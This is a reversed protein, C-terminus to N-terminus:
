HPTASGTGQVAPHLTPYPHHSRQNSPYSGPQPAGPASAGPNMMVVSPGAPHAHQVQVQAPAAQTHGQMRRYEVHRRLDNNERELNTITVQMNQVTGQLNAILDLRRQRSTAASRRNAELRKQRKREEYDTDRSTGRPPSDLLDGSDSRERKRDHESGEIDSEGESGLGVRADHMDQPAAHNQDGVGSEIKVGDHHGKSPSPPVSEIMLSAEKKKPRKEVRKKDCEKSFRLTFLELGPPLHGPQTQQKNALGQAL